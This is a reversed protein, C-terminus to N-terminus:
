VFRSFFGEADDGIMLDQFAKQLQKKAIQNINKDPM